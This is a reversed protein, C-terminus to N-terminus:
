SVSQDPVECGIRIRSGLVRVEHIKVSLVWHRRGTPFVSFLTSPSPSVLSMSMAWVVVRRDWKETANRNELLHAKDVRCM